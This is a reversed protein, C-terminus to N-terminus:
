FIRSGTMLYIPWLLGQLTAIIEGFFIWSFLGHVNAYVWNFYLGFGGAIIGYIVWAVAAISKMTLEEKGRPVSLVNSRNLSGKAM